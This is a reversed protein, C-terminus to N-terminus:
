QQKSHQVRQNDRKTQQIKTDLCTRICATVHVVSSMSLFDTTILFWTRRSPIDHRHQRSVTSSLKQVNVRLIVLAVSLVNQDPEDTIREITLLDLKEGRMDSM